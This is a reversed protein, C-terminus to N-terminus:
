WYCSELDGVLKTTGGGEAPRRLLFDAEAEVAQREENRDFLGKRRGTSEGFCCEGLVAM